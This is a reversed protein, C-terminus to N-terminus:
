PISNYVVRFAAKDGMSRSAAEDDFLDPSYYRWDRFLDLDGFKVWCYLVANICNLWSKMHSLRTAFFVPRKLIASLTGDIAHLPIRLYPYFSGGALKKMERAVARRQELVFGQPRYVIVEQDRYKAVDNIRVGRYLSEAVQGDGVYM